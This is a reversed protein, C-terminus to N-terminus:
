LIRGRVWTVVVEAVIVVAFIALLVVAVRDWQFLNMATNLAVGIGGAGVLGLVASERVNIDWRLLVLAWFAPKVQPWYGFVLLSPWPTGSAKLAEVPGRHAEELAEGLLKGVFGISRFAIALTGALAGPGFVAVFLLAWILSNVSRSSVLIFKAVLNLTPSPTVNRAALLAVPVSLVLAIITGLTATHFTEVLAEAVMEHWFSWDIPWMRRFLDATQEPADYLFEPIVEITRLSWIVAVAALVYTLGRGVRQALTFRQWTRLRALESM